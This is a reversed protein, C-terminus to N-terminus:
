LPHSTMRNPHETLERELIVPVVKRYEAKIKAKEATSKGIAEDFFTRQAEAYTMNTNFIQKM